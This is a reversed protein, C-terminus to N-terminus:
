GLDRLRDPPSPLPPMRLDPTAMIPRPVWLPLQWHPLGPPPRNQLTPLLGLHLQSPTAWRSAYPRQPPTAHYTPIAPKNPDYPPLKGSPTTGATPHISSLTRLHPLLPPHQSTKAKRGGGRRVLHRFSEPPSGAKPISRVPSPQARRPM